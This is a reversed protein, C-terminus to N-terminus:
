QLTRPMSVLEQPWIVPSPVLEALATPTCVLSTIPSLRQSPCETDGDSSIGRGDAGRGWAGHAESRLKVRHPFCTVIMAHKPRESINEKM